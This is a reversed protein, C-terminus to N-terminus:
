GSFTGFPACSLGFLSGSGGIPCLVAGLRAWPRGPGGLPGGGPLETGSQPDMKAGWVDGFRLRFRDFFSAFVSSSSCSRNLVIKSRDQLSRPGVKAGNQCKKVEHRGGRIRAFRPKGAALRVNAHNVMKCSGIHYKEFIYRNSPPEPVLKPRGFRWFPRFRGGFRGFFSVLILLIELRGRQPSLASRGASLVSRPSYNLGGRGGQSTGRSGGPAAWAGM